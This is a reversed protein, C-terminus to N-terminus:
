LSTIFTSKDSFTTNRKGEYAVSNDTKGLYILGLISDEERLNFNNRFFPTELFPGTSWFSAINLATATILINQVACASAILEEVLPIKSNSGRIMTAVIVHSALTPRNLLQNYKSADFSESPTSSQYAQAMLLGLTSLTKDTYIYFHWPETKGHTPAWIANQLLEDIEKREIKEGNFSEPKISRRSQIIQSITQM